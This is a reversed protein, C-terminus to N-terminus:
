AITSLIHGKSSETTPSSEGAKEILSVAAEGEQKQADLAKRHMKVSYQDSVNLSNVQM